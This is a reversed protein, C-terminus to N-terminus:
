LNENVIDEGTDKIKTEIGLQELIDGILIKHRDVKYMRIADLKSISLETARDVSLSNTYMFVSKLLAEKAKVTKQEEYRKKIVSYFHEKFKDISMNHMTQYKDSLMYDFFSKTKFAKYMYWNDYIGDAYFDNYYIDIEIRPNDPTYFKEGYLKTNFADDMVIKYEYDIFLDNHVKVMNDVDYLKVDVHELKEQMFLEFDKPFRAIEKRDVKSMSMYGRMVVCQPSYIYVNQLVKDSKYMSKFLDVLINKNVSVAVRGMVRPRSDTMPEGPITISLKRNYSGGYVNFKGKRLTSVQYREFLSIKDRKKARKVKRKPKDVAINM